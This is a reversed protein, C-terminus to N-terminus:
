VKSRTRATMAAIRHTGDGHFTSSTTAAATTSVASTQNQINQFLRRLGTVPASASTPETATAV